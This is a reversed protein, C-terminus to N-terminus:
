RNSLKSLVDPYQLSPIDQDILYEMADFFVNNGIV